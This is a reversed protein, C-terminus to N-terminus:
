FLNTGNNKYCANWFAAVEEAQKKTNHIEAIELDAVGRLVALLNTNQPAKVTYAYRKGDAVVSCALWFNKM